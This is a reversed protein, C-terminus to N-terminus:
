RASIKGVDYRIFSRQFETWKRRSVPLRLFSDILVTHHNPLIDTIHAMNVLYSKHIRFFPPSQLQEAWWTLNEECHYLKDGTLHLTSGGIYAELYVISNAPLLLETNKQRVAITSFAELEMMCDDLNEELEKALLPKTMFRFARARYGEKYRHEHATLILVLTNPFTDNIIRTWHIGDEKDNGFELDMFLIHIPHQEMYHFAGSPTTFTHFAYEVNKRAFYEQLGKELGGADAQYDDCFAIEICTNNM